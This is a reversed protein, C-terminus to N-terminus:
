WIGDRDRYELREVQWHTLMWPQGTRDSAVVRWGQLARVTLPSGTPLGDPLPDPHATAWCQLGPRPQIHRFRMRWKQQSEVGVALRVGADPFEERQGVRWDPGTRISLSTGPPM